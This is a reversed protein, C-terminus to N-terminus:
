SFIPTHPSAGNNVLFTLKQDFGTFFFPVNYHRDITLNHRRLYNFDQISLLKTSGNLDTGGNKGDETQILYINTSRFEQCQIITGRKGLQREMEYEFTIESRRNTPAKDNIVVETGIELKM